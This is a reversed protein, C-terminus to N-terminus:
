ELKMSSRLRGAVPQSKARTRSAIPSFTTEHQRPSSSDCEVGMVSPSHAEYLSMSSDSEVEIDFNFTHRCMYKRLTLKLIAIVCILVFLCLIPVYIFWTHIIYGESDPTFTTTSCSWTVFNPTSIVSSTSCTPNAFLKSFLKPMIRKPFQTPLLTRTTTTPKSTTTIDIFMDRSTKSPMSSLQTHLIGPDSYCMGSQCEYRRTTTILLDLNGWLSNDYAIKEANTSTQVILKETRTKVLDEGGLLLINVSCVTTIPNSEWLCRCPLQTPCRSSEACLVNYFVLLLWLLM